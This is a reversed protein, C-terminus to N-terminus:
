GGALPWSRPLDDHGALRRAAWHGNRELQQQQFALPAVAGAVGEAVAKASAPSGTRGGATFLDSVQGEAAEAAFNSAEQLFPNDLGLFDGEATARLGAESTPDIGGLGTGIQPILGLTRQSLDPVLPDDALGRSQNLIFDLGSKATPDIRSTRTVDSSGSEKKGGLSM